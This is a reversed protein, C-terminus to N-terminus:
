SLLILRENMRKTRIKRKADAKANEAEESRRNEEGSESILHEWLSEPVSDEKAEKELGKGCSICFSM